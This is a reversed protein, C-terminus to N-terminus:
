KAKFTLGQDTKPAGVTRFVFSGERPETIEALMIGGADPELALANGNLAFVGKVDQRNKGERYSWTFSKDSGLILEFTAKGRSANWTGILKATDIKVDSEVPPQPPSPSKGLMHLLQGSVTDNPALKQTDALEKAAHDTHGMTLYHYALLFHGDAAKPNDGVYTELARMQKTYTDIDPYLSRMTTWDWGPGVALVPHLTAAADKYKGLAYLVLARFEHIVADKPMSALAKNTSQLASQYDREFFSNRAADFHKMGEKTVGPPLEPEKGPETAPVEMPPAAMSESYNITTNDIVLPESYYPNEYSGTGFWYSMRNLGWVTTGLVMAATHESWMHSWYDGWSGGWGGHYWGNHHGYYDDAWNQWDERRNNLYDQRQDQRQNRYDQRQEMRDNLNQSRDAINAKRDQIGEQRRGLYDGVKSAGLGAGLGPLLMSGGGGPRTGPRNGFGPDVGKGQGINKAGVGPRVGFGPDVGKGPGISPRNGPTLGPGTVIGPRSGPGGSPLTSPRNMGGGGVGPSRNIGGGPLGGSPRAGGGPLGGSPRAGGGPLGGSPRAGGSPRSVGGGGGRGGGGGGRGGGGGGRGRGDVLDVIVLLAGLCVVVAMGAILKNLKM